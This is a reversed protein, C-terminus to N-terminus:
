VKQQDTCEIPESIIITVQERQETRASYKYVKMASILKVDKIIHGIITKDSSKLCDVMIYSNKDDKLLKVTRYKTQNGVISRGTKNQLFSNDSQKSMKKM